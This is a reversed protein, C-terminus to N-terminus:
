FLLLVKNKQIIEIKLLIYYFNSCAINLLYVTEM